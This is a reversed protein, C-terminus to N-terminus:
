MVWKKTKIIYFISYNIFQLLMVISYTLTAGLLEYNKVLIISLIFSIISDFLYIYVQVKNEKLITLAASLISTIAMFVAGAIILMLMFKYPELNFGYILNLVPIGIIYCGVECIVGFIIIYACIKILETTFEKIKNKTYLTTLKLLYPNLLYQCCLSLITGPMLIIGFINQVEPISYFDLTYKSSNVLYLGLFSFIFVPFAEKLLHITKNWNFKKEVYRKSNKWDYFYTILGNIIPLTLCSLILNGTIKDVLFFIIIGLLGKYFMSIGAKYLKNEKQMIAYLSDSFADMLRFLCILLIITSKYLNYRFIIIMIITIILMLLCTIIKSCIYDFNSYKSKIDSVQFTRNYFIGIVYFLCVLSYAYTFIGADYQGNVRNVIVLFFFSSFSNVTLGLFNWSFNKKDVNKNM